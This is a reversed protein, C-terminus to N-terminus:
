NQKRVQVNAEITDDHVADAAWMQTWQQIIEDVAALFTDKKVPSGIGM